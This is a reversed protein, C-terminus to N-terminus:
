NNDSKNLSLQASINTSRNAVIRIGRSWSDYGDLTVRIARSGAPISRVVLPTRGEFQNNIFVSAGAPSSSVVLRGRHVSRDSGASVSKTVTPPAKTEVVAVAPPTKAAASAKATAPAPAAAPRRASAAKVKAVASAPPPGKVAPAKVAVVSAPKAAAKHTAPEKAGAVDSHPQPPTVAASPGSAAAVTTVAASAVVAALERANPVPVKSAIVHVSRKPAVSAVAALSTAGTAMETSRSSAPAAAPSAAAVTRAAAAPQTTM